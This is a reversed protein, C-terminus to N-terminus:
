CSSTSPGALHGLPVPVSTVVYEGEILYVRLLPVALYLSATAKVTTPDSRRGGVHSLLWWRFFHLVHTLISPFSRVIPSRGAGKKGPRYPGSM